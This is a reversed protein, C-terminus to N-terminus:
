GRIRKREKEVLNLYDSPTNINFFGKGVSIFKRDCNFNDFAHYINKTDDNCNDIVSKFLEINNVKFAIIAHENGYFNVDICEDEIIKKITSEEYYTDGYLYTVPEDILDYAVLKHYHENCNSILRTANENTHNINSSLIIVPDDTYTKILRVTRDLLRENNIVAEQKTIGLYNNWRTGKGNAMIMYKM